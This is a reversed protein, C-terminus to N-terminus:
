FMLDLREGFALVDKKDIATLPKSPYRLSPHPYKVIKMDVRRAPEVLRFEGQSIDNYRWNEGCLVCLDCLFGHSNEAIEANEATLIRSTDSIKKTQKTRRNPWRTAGCGGSRIRSVPAGM